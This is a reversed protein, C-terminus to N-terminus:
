QGEGVERGTEGNETQQRYILMTDIKAKSVQELHEEHFLLM